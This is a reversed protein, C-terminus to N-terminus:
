YVIVKFFVLSTFNWTSFFILYICNVRKLEKICSKYIQYIGPATPLGIYQNIDARDIFALDISGTVNSTTLVLVNPYRNIYICAVNLFAINVTLDLM